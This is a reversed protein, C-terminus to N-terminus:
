TSIVDTRFGGLERDLLATTEMEFPRAPLHSVKPLFIVTAPIAPILANSDVLVQTSPTASLFFANGGSNFCHSSALAPTNSSALYKGPSHIGEKEYARTGTAFIAFQTDLLKRSSALDSTTFSCKLVGHNGSRLLHFFYSPTRYTRPRIAHFRSQSHM